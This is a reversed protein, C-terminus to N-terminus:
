YYHMYNKDTSMYIRDLPPQIPKGKESHPFGPKCGNEWENRYEQDIFVDRKPNKRSSM